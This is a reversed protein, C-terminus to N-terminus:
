LTLVQHPDLSLAWAYLLPVHVIQPPITASTSAFAKEFKGAKLFTGHVTNRFLRIRDLRDQESHTSPLAASLHSHIGDFIAEACDKLAKGLSVHRKSGHNFLITAVVQGAQASFLRKFIQTDSSAPSTAKLNSLKDMFSFAARAHLNISTTHNISLLDAFMLHVGSQTKLFRLLDIEGSKDAFNRPDNLYRLLSNIADVALFFYQQNEELTLSVFPPRGIETLPLGHSSSIEFIGRTAEFPFLWPGRPGFFHLQSGMRDLLLTSALPMFTLLSLVYSLVEPAAPLVSGMASGQVLGIAREIGFEKVFYAVKAFGLFGYQKQFSIRLPAVYAAGMVRHMFPLIQNILVPELRNQPERFFLNHIEQLQSRIGYNPNVPVFDPPPNGERWGEIETLYESVFNAAIEQYSNADLSLPAAVTQLVPDPGALFRPDNDPIIWDDGVRVIRYGIEEQLGETYADVSLRDLASVHGIRM